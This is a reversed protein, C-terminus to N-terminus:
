NVLNIKTSALAVTNTKIDALIENVFQYVNMREITGHKRNWRSDFCNWNYMSIYRVMYNLYTNKNTEKEKM